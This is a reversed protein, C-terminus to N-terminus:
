TKSSMKSCISPVMHFLPSKCTLESFRSLSCKDEGAAQIKVTKQTFKPSKSFNPPAMSKGDEVHLFFYFLFPLVFIIVINYLLAKDQNGSYFHNKGKNINLDKNHKAKTSKGSNCNEEMLLNECSFYFERSFM